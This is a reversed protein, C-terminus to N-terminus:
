EKIPRFQGLGFHCGYGLAIPWQVPRDFKLSLGLGSQVPDEKRNRRFEAWRISRGVQLSLNPIGSVGAPKEIGHNTCERAVEAHLWAEFGERKSKFHRTPVFPTSSVFLSAAPFTVGWQVPICRVDPKGGRQWLADLRDLAIRELEDFAQHRCYVLIHDIRGDGDRDQPLIFSHQHGTLPTGDQSKGSFRRSVNANGGALKRHIGMLRVRVQEAVEITQTVLPLVKSDLEYLVSHIHSDQRKQAPISASALDETPLVYDVYQMAPPYSLGHELLLDSGTAIAEFWSYTRTKKGRGIQSPKYDAPPVAVAVPVIDGALVEKQPTPLCNWEVGTVGDLVRASVWSESRGLYNLVALLSDLDDLLSPDPLLHPWGILVTARPNLAVFGDFILTKEQPNRENKSLYSRTHSVATAPLRYLPPSSSLAALAREVRDTDWNALKRKWADYLARVLRYPSPPWEPVGENVHRGWATAHYRGAPFTFEILLM